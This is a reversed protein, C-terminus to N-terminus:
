HVSDMHLWDPTRIKVGQIVVRQQQAEVINTWQPETDPAQALRPRLNIHNSRMEGRPTWM